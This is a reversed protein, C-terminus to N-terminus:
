NGEVKGTLRGSAHLPLTNEAPVKEKIKALRKLSFQNTKHPGIEKDASWLAQLEGHFPFGWHGTSDFKVVVVHKPKPEADSIRPIWVGEGATAKVEVNEGSKTKADIGPTNTPLPDLSFELCAILEGLDGLLKGDITFAHQSSDGLTKRAIAQVTRQGSLLVQYAALVMNEDVLDVSLNLDM